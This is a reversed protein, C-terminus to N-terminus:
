NLEVAGPEPHALDVPAVPSAGFLVWYRDFPHADSHSLLQRALLVDRAGDGDFDGLKLSAEVAGTVLRRKPLKRVSSRRISTGSLLVLGKPKLAGVLLDDRGDGSLDGLAVVPFYSPVPHVEAGGRGPLRVNSTRTRGFVVFLRDDDLLIALDGRGDGNLDGAEGADSLNCPCSGRSHIRIAFGAARGRSRAVVPGRPSPRSITVRGPHKRGFVVVLMEDYDFGRARGDPDPLGIAIDDRGDGNVDGVAHLDASPGLPIGRGAYIEIHRRLPHVRGGFRLRALDKLAASQGVSLVDELGDGDFDGVGTMFRGDVDIDVFAGRDQGLDLPQTDRKGFVVVSPILVDDLRDGNVDGIATATGEYARGSTDTIRFGREGPAARSVAATRDRAGFVVSWGTSDISDIFDSTVADALGDGNIDYAAAPAAVALGGVVLIALISRV